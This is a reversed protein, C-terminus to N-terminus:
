GDHAFCPGRLQAGHIGFRILSRFGFAFGRQVRPSFRVRLGSLESARNAAFQRALCDLDLAVRKKIRHLASLAFRFLTVMRFRKVLRGGLMGGNISTEGTRSDTRLVTARRLENAYTRSSLSKVCSCNSLARCEKGKARASNTRCCFLSAVSFSESYGVIFM